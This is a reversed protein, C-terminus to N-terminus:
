LRCVGIKYILNYYRRVGAPRILNSNDAVREIIHSLKSCGAQATGTTDIVNSCHAQVTGTKDIVNSCVAQRLWLLKISLRKQRETQECTVTQRLIKIQSSWETNGDQLELHVCRWWMLKWIYKFSDLIWKSPEQEVM